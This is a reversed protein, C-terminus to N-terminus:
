DSLAINSAKEIADWLGRKFVDPQNQELWEIVAALKAKWLAKSRSQRSAADMGRVQAGDVFGQNYEKGDM